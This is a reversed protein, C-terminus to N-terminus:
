LWDRYRFYSVMATLVVLMAGIIGWFGATSEFGPFHVNMGAVSAILTLPLVIVSFATLVRLIDNVQHSLVSENTAELAEIVEKYNELLDWIRENADQIDDFYV